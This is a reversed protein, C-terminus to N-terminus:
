TFRGRPYAAPDPEPSGPATRRLDALVLDAAASISDGLYTGPMDVRSHEASFANGAYYVADVTGAVARIAVMAPARTNVLHSVIIAAAAQTQVVATRLSAAPTRAGLNRCDVGHDRLLADIADLGLTHSDNPGCSLVVPGYNVESETGREDRLWSQMVVTALHEHAPDAQGHQWRRGVERMVPLIVADITAALGVSAETVRLQDLIGRRDLRQVARLIDDVLSRQSVDATAVASAAAAAPRLGRAIEDRMRRLVVLDDGTYRRHGGASRGSTPLDYRREWSRITPAPVQLLESAQRITFPGGDDLPDPETGTASPVPYLYDAHPPDSTPPRPPPSM